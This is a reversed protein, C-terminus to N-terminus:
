SHITLKTVGSPLHSRAPMGVRHWGFPGSEESAVNQTGQRAGVGCALHQNVSIVGGVGALLKARLCIKM